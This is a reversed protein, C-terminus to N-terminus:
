WTWKKKFYKKEFMDINLFMWLLQGARESDQFKIETILDTIVDNDLWDVIGLRANALDVIRPWWGTLPVPFGVKKRFIVENPLFDKAVEKLIYKPIDLEESYDKAFLKRAKCLYEPRTWRL